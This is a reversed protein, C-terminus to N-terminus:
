ALFLVGVGGVAVVAGGVARWSLRERHVFHSLPLMLIPVTAMITAAIGVKTHAVAILSLSIGLFPGIVSGLATLWAARSDEKWFRWPTVLRGSAMTMPLLPVLSAVIRVFTAVFGNVEGENFAMKAFILGVGQGAAGILAAALGRGTLTYRADESPQRGLVVLAIGALTVAIGVVGAVSLSEGLFVYAIVAAIAPALSMMLMSLRAGIEQFARFLFTDGLTLGIVGSIALYLLQTGSLNIDAGLLPILVALYVVALLLRTVNVQVSGARASAAAFVLASVSWLAATLLAALEGLFPM